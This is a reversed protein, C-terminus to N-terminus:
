HLIFFYDNRLDAYFILGLVTYSYKIVIKM